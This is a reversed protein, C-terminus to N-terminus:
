GLPTWTRSKEPASKIGIFSRGFSSAPGFLFSHCSKTPPYAHLTCLLVIFALTIILFPYKYKPPEPPRLSVSYLGPRKKVPSPSATIKWPSLIDRAFMDHRFIDAVGQNNIGRDVAMSFSSRSRFCTNPIAM